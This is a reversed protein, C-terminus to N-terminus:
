PTQTSWPAVLQPVFPLHSPAPPQATYAFPTTQAAADHGGPADVNICGRTHLAPTHAAPGWCDQAGYRQPAVFAQRV